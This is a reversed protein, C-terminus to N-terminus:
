KTAEGAQFFEKFVWILCVIYNKGIDTIIQAGSILSLYALHFAIRLDNDIYQFSRSNAIEESVGPTLVGPEDFSDMPALYLKDEHRM